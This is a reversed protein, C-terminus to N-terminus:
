VWAIVGVGVFVAITLYLTRKSGAIIGDDIAVQALAPIALGTATVVLMLVVSASARGLHPRFYPALRRLKRPAIAAREGAGLIPGIVSSASGGGGPRTSM